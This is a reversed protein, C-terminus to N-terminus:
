ELEVSFLNRDLRYNKLANVVDPSVNSLLRDYAEIGAPDWSVRSVIEISIQPSGGAIIGKCAGDTMAENPNLIAVNRGSHRALADKFIHKCYGFHTCCLGAYVTSGNHKINQAAQAAFEDIVTKVEDSFPDQEIKGALGLYGQTIIREPAIGQEVLSKKHSNEQITIPTAFIVACASANRILNAYIMQVGHDVIGTVPITTQKAFQTFPYIVSLTNCAIFIHDPNYKAMAALANDFVKARATPNPYHRYGKDQEPWANFYVLRIREYRADAAFRAAMGACVSLGGLGSDTIVLTIQKKHNM